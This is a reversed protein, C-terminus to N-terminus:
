HSSPGEWGRGASADLQMKKTDEMRKGRSSIQTGGGKTFQEPGAQELYGQQSVEGLVSGCEQM